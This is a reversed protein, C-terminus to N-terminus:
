IRPLGLNKKSPIFNIQYQLSFGLTDKAFFGGDQIETANPSLLPLSTL